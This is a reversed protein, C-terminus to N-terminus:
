GNGLVAIRTMGKNVVEEDAPTGTGEGIRKAAPHVERIAVDAQKDTIGNASTNKIGEAEEPSAATFSVHVLAVFKGASNKKHLDFVLKWIPDNEPSCRKEVLLEFKFDEEPNVVAVELLFPKCKKKATAVATVKTPM